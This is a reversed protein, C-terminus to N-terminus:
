VVYLKGMKQSVLGQLELMTITQMLIHMPIGAANAAEDPLMGGCDRIIGYLTHEDESLGKLKDHAAAKAPKPPKAAAFDPKRAANKDRRNNYESYVELSLLALIDAASTVLYAGNRILENPCVSLNSDINGPVAAVERGQELAINATISSGSSASGEVVLVVSSLGSIIRNRAPFNRPMPREDPPLESIVVGTKEILRKLYENEQPYSINIGCGMVAATFGKGDLAGKHAEGDIGKALGSVVCVGAEALERSITYACRRGYPTPSRTGVVAVCARTQTPPLKGKLYLLLPSDPLAKLSQPYDSSHQTLITISLKECKEAIYEAKGLNKDALKMIDMKPMNDVMKLDGLTARYIEEFSKFRPLLSNLRRSAGGLATAAWITYLMERDNQGQKVENINNM